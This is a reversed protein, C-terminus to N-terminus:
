LKCGIVQTRQLGNWPTIYAPRQEYPYRGHNQSVPPVGFARNHGEVVTTGSIFSSYWGSPHPSSQSPHGQVM